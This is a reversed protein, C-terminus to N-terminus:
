EMLGSFLYNHKPATVKYMRLEEKLIEDPTSAIGFKKQRELTRSLRTNEEQNGLALDTIITQYYPIVYRLGGVDTHSRNWPQHRVM